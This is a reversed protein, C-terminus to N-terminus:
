LAQGSAERDGFDAYRSISAMRGSADCAGVEIDFCEASRARMLEIHWRPRGVGPVPLPESPLSSVRWRTVSATPQGYDTAESQRRWRRLMLGLTGRQEAALQLRRSAVMPFRVVEAVVAGIGGYRLAEEASDLIAADDQGECFIVRDLDLGVQALAPAFLDPRNLCWIVPGKTRAVIGSVFLASVAGTVVDSGGGAVEHIAGVALGGGALRRDIDEVGFPLYAQKRAPHGGIKNIRDQLDAVLEAKQGEFM